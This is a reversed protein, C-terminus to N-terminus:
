TLWRCLSLHVDGDEVGVGGDRGDVGAAPEVGGLEFFEELFGRCSDM